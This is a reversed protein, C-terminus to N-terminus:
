RRHFTYGHRVRVERSSALPAQQFPAIGAGIRERLEFEAFVSLLGAMARGTPTTLDLAEAYQTRRAIAFREKAHSRTFAIGAELSNPQVRGALLGYGTRLSEPVYRAEGRRRRRVPKRVVESLTRSM